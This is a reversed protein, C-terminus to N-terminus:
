ENAASADERLLANLIPLAVVWAQHVDTSSPIHNQDHGIANYWSVTGPTTAAPGGQRKLTNVQNKIQPNLEIIQSAFEDEGTLLGGLGIHDRVPNRDANFREKIAWELIGRLFFAAAIPTRKVNIKFLEGLRKQMAESSSEWHLTNGNLSKAAFPDPINTPKTSSPDSDNQDKGGQGTHAQVQSRSRNAAKPPILGKAAAAAADLDTLLKLVATSNKKENLVKRTSLEGDKYGRILREFAGIEESSTPQHQILGEPTFSLGIRQRIEPIAYGYELASASLASSRAYRQIDPDFFPTTKLVTRASALQVLRPLDDVSNLIEKLKPMPTGSELQTMVFNAQEDRDWALKSRGIHLAALVSTASERDEFVMVRIKVPVEEAELSYKRKLSEIRSEFEPVLHPSDIAKLAAVRRNGEIVVRQGNENVIIPVENDIYGSVLISRVLELAKYEEFLHRVAKTQTSVDETFRSNRLDLKLQRVSFRKILRESVQTNGQQQPSSGM